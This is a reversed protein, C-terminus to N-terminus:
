AQLSLCETLIRNKGVDKQPIVFANVMPSSLLYFRNMSVSSSEVMSSQAKSLREFLEEFVRYAESAENRDVVVGAEREVYDIIEKESLEAFGLSSTLVILISIALHKLM